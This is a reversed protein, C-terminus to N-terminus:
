RKRAWIYYVPLGALVLGLGLLSGLPEHMVQNVIIAATALVFLAPLAPYGWV